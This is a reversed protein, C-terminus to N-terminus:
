GYNKAIRVSREMEEIEDIRREDGEVTRCSYDVINIINFGLSKLLMLMENLHIIGESFQKAVREGFLRKVDNPSTFDLNHIHSNLESLKDKYKKMTTKTLPDHHIVCIRHEPESESASYNESFDYVKEVVPVYTRIHKECRISSQAKKTDLMDKRIKQLSLIKEKSRSASTSDDKMEERMKTALNRLHGDVLVGYNKIQSSLIDKLMKYTSNEYEEHLVDDFNEKLIHSFDNIDKRVVCSCVGLKGAQSFVRVTVGLDLLPQDILERGHCNVLVTIRKDEETLESTEELFSPMRKLPDPEYPSEITMKKIFGELLGHLESM